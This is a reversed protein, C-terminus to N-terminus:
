PRVSTQDTRANSMVLKAKEYRGETLNQSCVNDANSASRLYRRCRETVTRSAFVIGFRLGEIALRVVRQAPQAKRDIINRAGANQVKSTVQFPGASGSVVDAM